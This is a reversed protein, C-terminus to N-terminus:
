ITAFQYHCWSWICHSFELSCNSRSMSSATFNCTLGLGMKGGSHWKMLEMSTYTFLLMCKVSRQSTTPHRSNHMLYTLAWKVLKGKTGLQKRPQHTWRFNNWQCISHHLKGRKPHPRPLWPNHQLNHHGYSPRTYMRSISAIDIQKTGSDLWSQDMNSQTAWFDSSIEHLAMLQCCFDNAYSAQKQKTTFTQDLM